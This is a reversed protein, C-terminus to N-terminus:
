ASREKMWVICIFYIILFISYLSWKVIRDLNFYSVDLQPLLNLYFFSSSKCFFDENFESTIM